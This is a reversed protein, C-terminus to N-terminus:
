GRGSGAESRGEDEGGVSRAGYNRRAREAEREEEEWERERRAAEKRREHWSSDRVIGERRWKRPPKVGVAAKREWVQMGRRFWREQREQEEEASPTWKSKLIRRISEASVEFKDALARTTYTDPFQANLARIGALADPSLRKRPKWGQPFKEKLAAKQSQWEPTKPQAINSDPSPDHPKAKNPRRKPPSSPPSSKENTRPKSQKSSQAENEMKKDRTRNERLPKAEAAPAPEATGTVNERKDVADEAAVALRSTEQRWYSSATLGRSQSSVFRPVPVPRWPRATRTSVQLNHVQALSQVFIKWPAARCPCKM